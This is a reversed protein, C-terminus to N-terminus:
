AVAHASQSAPLYAAAPELAHVLQEAPLASKSLSALVAHVLQLAPVYLPAAELEHMLQTAPLDSSSALGDVAQKTQWGPNKVSVSFDKPGHM